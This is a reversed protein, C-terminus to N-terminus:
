LRLSLTQKCCIYALFIKKYFSMLQQANLQNNLHVCNELPQELQHRAIKEVLNGDLHGGKPILVAGQQNRVDDSITISFRQSMNMLHQVYCVQSEADQLM